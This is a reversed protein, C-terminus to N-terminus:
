IAPIRELNACVVAARVFSFVIKSLYWVPIAQVLPSTSASGQWQWVTHRHITSRTLLTLSFFAHRQSSISGFAISCKTCAGQEWYPPEYFSGLPWQLIHYVGPGPWSVSVSTTQGRRLTKQNHLSSRVTFPFLLLPLCFVFLHFSVILSHVPISKALDSPCSFVHFPPFLKSNFDDTTGRRGELTVSLYLNIFRKGKFNLTWM